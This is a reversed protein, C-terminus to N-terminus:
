NFMQLYISYSFTIIICLIMTLFVNADGDHNMTFPLQGIIDKFVQNNLLLLLIMLILSHKLNNLVSYSIIEKQQYQPEQQQYQPQQQQYQPQQYQPEQQQYQPEQQYKQHFPSPQTSPQYQPEQNQYPQQLPQQQMPMIEQQQELQNEIDLVETEQLAEEIIKANDDNDYNINSINTGQM